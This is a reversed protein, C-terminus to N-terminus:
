LNKFLIFLGYLEHNSLVVNVTKVRQSYIDEFVYRESNLKYV